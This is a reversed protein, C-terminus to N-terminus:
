AIKTFPRAICVRERETRICRGAAVHRLCASSEGYKSTSWFVSPLCCCLPPPEMIGEAENRINTRHKRVGMSGSEQIPACQASPKRRSRRNVM